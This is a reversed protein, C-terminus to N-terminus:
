RPSSTQRKLTIFSWMRKPPIREAERASQVSKEFQEHLEPDIGVGLFTTTSRVSGANQSRIGKLAWTEGGVIGGGSGGRGEVQITSRSQVRANHIYSGVLIEGGTTV